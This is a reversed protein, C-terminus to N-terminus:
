NYYGRAYANRWPDDDDDSDSKKNRQNDFFRNIKSQELKICEDRLSIWKKQISEDTSDICFNVNLEFNPGICYSCKKRIKKIFCLHDDKVNNFEYSISNHIGNECQDLFEDYLEILKEKLQVEDKVFIMEVEEPKEEPKEFFIYIDRREFKDGDDDERYSDEFYFCLKKNLEIAQSDDVCKIDSFFAFVFCCGTIFISKLNIKSM